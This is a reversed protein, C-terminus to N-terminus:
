ALRPPFPKTNLLLNGPKLKATTSAATVIPLMESEGECSGPFFVDAIALDTFCRALLLLSIARQFARKNRQNDFIIITMSRDKLLVSLIVGIKRRDIQKEEAPM